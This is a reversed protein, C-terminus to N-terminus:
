STKTAHHKFLAAFMHLLGSVVPEVAVGAQIATAAAPSFAAVIQAAEAAATDIKEELTPAASTQPVFPAAAPTM